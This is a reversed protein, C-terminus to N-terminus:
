ASAPKLPLHAQLLEFGARRWQGVAIPQPQDRYQKKGYWWNLLRPSDQGGACSRDPVRLNLRGM